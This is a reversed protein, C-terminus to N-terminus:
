SPNHLIKKLEDIDKVVFFNNKANGVIGIVEPHAIDGAIILNDSESAIKQIRKVKPCTQDVIEVGRQRLAQMVDRGVGHARIFVLSGPDISDPDETVIVGKKRLQENITQNHVIQGFTYIKRGSQETQLAQELADIARSVGFCFGLSETQVIEFSM